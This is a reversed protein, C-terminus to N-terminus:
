IPPFQPGAPSVLAQGPAPGVLRGESGGSLADLCVGEVKAWDRCTVLWCSIGVLFITVKRRM